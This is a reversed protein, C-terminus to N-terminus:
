LPTTWNKLFFRSDCAPRDWRSSSVRIRIPSSMSRSSAQDMMWQQTRSLRQFPLIGIRGVAIISQIDPRMGGDVRLLGKRAYGQADAPMASRSNYAACAESSSVRMWRECWYQLRGVHYALNLPKFM